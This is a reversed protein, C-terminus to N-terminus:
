DWWSHIDAYENILFSPVFGFNYKFWVFYICSFSINFAFSYILLLYNQFYLLMFLVLAAEEVVFPKSILRVTMCLLMDRLFIQTCRLKLHDLCIIVTFRYIMTFFQTFDFSIVKGELLIYVTYSPEVSRPEVSMKSCGVHNGPGKRHRNLRTETYITYVFVYTYIHTIWIWYSAINYMVLPLPSFQFQVFYLFCFVTYM